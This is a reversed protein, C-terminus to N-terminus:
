LDLKATLYVEARRFHGADPMKGMTNYGVLLKGDKWVEISNSADSDVTLRCHHRRCTEWLQTFEHGLFSFDM